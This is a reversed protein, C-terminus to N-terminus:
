PTTSHPSPTPATQGPASSPPTDTPFQVKGSGGSPLPEGPKRLTPAATPAGEGDKVAARDGMVITRTPPPAIYGAVENKDHVQIAKGLEAVKVLSVRDGQFRVFRVTQPSHGYIWEEYRAGTGDDGARERLKSEPAGLSALVMRRDMGVLVDHAAIADRLPQPLTDAYAQESSKVGFDILPELLAKVEPASLEPVRNKFLLTVRAGTPKEAPVSALNNNNIQIHSLFRHRAFPGGNLDFIIRDAKIEMATIMVRDGPAASEGKEYIMQKYKDPGPSIPGNAELSIGSGMPLARHAFGQEADLMRVLERRGRESLKGAPLPVDTPSFSTSIADTASKQGVVFVQAQVVPFSLPLFVAILAWRHAHQVM